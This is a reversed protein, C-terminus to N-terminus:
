SYREYSQLLIDMPTIISKNNGAGNVSIHFQLAIHKDTSKDSTSIEVMRETSNSKERWGKGEEDKEGGRGRRM